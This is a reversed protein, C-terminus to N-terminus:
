CIIKGIRCGLLFIKRKGCYKLPRQNKKRIIGRGRGEIILKKKRITRRQRNLPMPTKSASEDGFVDRIVTEINRRWKANRPCM